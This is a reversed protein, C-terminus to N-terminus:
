KWRKPVKRRDDRKGHYVRVVEITNGEIAYILVYPFVALLIQHLDEAIRPFANPRERVYSLAVELEHLFRDELGPRQEHYWIVAATVDEDAEPGFIIRVSM